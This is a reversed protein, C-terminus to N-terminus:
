RPTRFTRQILLTLEELDKVTSLKGGEVWSIDRREESVLIVCADTRESIGVGARHRTGYRQELPQQSIPFFAGACLIHAEGHRARVIM